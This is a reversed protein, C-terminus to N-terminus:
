QCDPCLGFFELRHTVGRFGNRKAIEDELAKPFCDEIEVIRGCDNCILHHHHSHGCTGILEYRAVGDGFDFRKVLEMEELMGMSRYVTALDCKGVPLAEFVEKITYPRRRQRMVDLIAHRPGTIRRSRSRLKQQLDALSERDPHSHTGGAM